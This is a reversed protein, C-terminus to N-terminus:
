NLTVTLSYGGVTNGFTMAYRTAVVTYTGNEPLLVNAIIADTRRVTPSVVGSDDNEALQLGNPGILFLKTDLTPSTAISSVTVRQGATGEFTYVNFTNTDTIQGFVPVNLTIPQAARSQWPLLTVDTSAFGGQRAQASGDAAVNFGIVYHQNLPIRLNEVTVLQGRVIITLTVDVIASDNCQNQYWVDIEYSGPRLLGTPWYIYSVPNGPARNCNINGQLTMQGGSAVRLQDDFVSDGAPDRVLLQVDAASRWTLFVQVDGSPVDLALVEPPVQAVAGELEFRFDGETGGVEKGYRTVIFFYTGANGFRLGLIESNKSNNSDDNVAVLNGNADAVQLLTDLSGNLATARATVVENAAAEYSFVRFFNVQTVSGTVTANRTIPQAASTLESPPAVVINLSSDPYVGGANFQATGDENVRFSTLYTSNQGPLPPALTATQVPLNVGNVSATITFEVPEPTQCAQRYFVLIEYNGTPLFGPQWTATEVPNPSIIQCFGNADFGFSGGIPSTRSDFFLTNGVPDRVELNLDAPATWALSVQLGNGLLVQRPEQFGTESTPATGTPPETAADTPPETAADTPADVTATPALDGEGNLVLSFNGESREGIAFVTVFYTATTPIVVNAALAPEGEIERAQALITGDAATVIFGIALDDEGVAALNVEEGTVAVFFFVRAVNEASLTSTAPTGRTLILASEQAHSAVALTLLLSLIAILKRMLM